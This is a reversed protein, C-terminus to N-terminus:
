NCPIPIEIVDGGSRQKITCVRQQQIVREEIGLLTRQNIEIDGVIEDTDSVGVLALSLRGSTQAQAFSAADRPSVEITITRAVRPDLRDQDAIQDIAIIKVKTYILKTVQQDGIQGSWFVDVRDGPSLFGSVGSTVDVNITFARMGPALFASVGAEQGPDTVKVALIPENAEMARLVVRPEANGNPFLSAEDRFPGEPLSLEPFKILKVDKPTLKEGYRLTRNAVYIDVVAVQSARAQREAFLASEYESIYGRAMYVAFGALGLGFILVLGFVLRM